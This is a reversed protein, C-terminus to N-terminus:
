LVTLIYDGIIYDGINAATIVTSGVRVEGKLVIAVPAGSYNVILKFNEVNHFYNFTDTDEFVIKGTVAGEELVIANTVYATAMGDITISKTPVAFVYAADCNQPYPNKFTLDKDAFAEGITVYTTEETYEVEPLAPEKEANDFCLPCEFDFIESLGHVIAHIARYLSEAFTFVDDVMTSYDEEVFGNYINTASDIVNQVDEKADNITGAVGDVTGQVEEMDPAAASASVATISFTMIVALVIALIKKM